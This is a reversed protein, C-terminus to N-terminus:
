EHQLIEKKYIFNYSRKQSSTVKELLKRRFANAHSNEEYMAYVARQCGNRKFMEMSKAFPLLICGSGIYKEHVSIHEFVASKRDPRRVLTYAAITGDKVAMFSMEMDACRSKQELYPRIDLRNQFGNVGSNYLNHLLKSDADAFSVCRYGQRLLVGCFKEGTEAMYNEWNIFTEAGGSFVICSSDQVFGLKEATHRVISFNKRSEAISLKVDLDAKETVFRLMQTFIGSNRKDPVTYAYLVTCLNTDKEACIYGAPLDNEMLIYLMGNEDASKASLDSFATRFDGFLFLYDMYSANIIKRTM